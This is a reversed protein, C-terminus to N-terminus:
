SREDPTPLNGRHISLYERVSLKKRPTEAVKQITTTTFKDTAFVEGTTSDVVQNSHNPQVSNETIQTSDQEQNTKPDTDTRETISTEEQKPCTDMSPNTDNQIVAHTDELPLTSASSAGDSLESEDYIPDPNETTKITSANINSNPIGPSSSVAPSARQQEALFNCLWRKKCPLRNPSISRSRKL